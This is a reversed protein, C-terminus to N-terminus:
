CPISSLAPRVRRLHLENSGRKICNYRRSAGFRLFNCCSIIPLSNSKLFYDRKAQTRGNVSKGKSFFLYDCKYGFELSASSLADFSGSDLSRMGHTVQHLYIIDVGTQASTFPLRSLGNAHDNDHNRQHEYQTPLNSTDSTISLITSKSFPTSISVYLNSTTVFGKFEVSPCSNDVSEELQDLQEDNSVDRKAETLTVSTDFRTKLRKRRRTPTQDIIRIQHSNGVEPDGQYRSFNSSEHDCFQLHKEKSQYYDSTETRKDPPQITTSNGISKSSNSLGGSSSDNSSPLQLNSSSSTLPAPATVPSVQILPLSTQPDLLPLASQHLMAPLFASFSPLAPKQVTLQLPTFHSASNTPLSSSITGPVCPSAISLLQQDKFQAAQLTLALADSALFPPASVSPQSESTSKVQAPPSRSPAALLLVSTARM